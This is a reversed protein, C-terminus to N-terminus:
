NLNIIYKQLIAELCEDINQDGQEQLVLILNEIDIILNRFQITIADIQLQEQAKKYISNYLFYKNQIIQQDTIIKIDLEQGLYNITYCVLDVNQEKYQQKQGNIKSILELRILNNYCIQKVDIHYYNDLNTLQITQCIICM